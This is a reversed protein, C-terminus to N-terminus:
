GLIRVRSGKPNKQALENISLFSGKKSIKDKAQESFSFAAVTVSKSLEGNGLVKGPVIVTENEKAYQDIKSLNVIRRQRSPKELDSAIRKWINVKQEISLKRLSDILSKANRNM